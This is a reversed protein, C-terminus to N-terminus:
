TIKVVAFSTSKLNQLLSIMAERIDFICGDKIETATLITNKNRPTM